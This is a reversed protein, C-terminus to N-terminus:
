FGGRSFARKQTQRGGQFHRIVFDSHRLNSWHCFVHGHALVPGGTDDNPVGLRTMGEDNGEEALVKEGKEVRGGHGDDVVVEAREDFEASRVEV